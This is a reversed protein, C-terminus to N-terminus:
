LWYLSEVAKGFVKMMGDFLEVALGDNFGNWTSFNLNIKM